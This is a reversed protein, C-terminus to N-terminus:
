HCKGHELPGQPDRGREPPMYSSEVLSVDTSSPLATPLHSLPPLTTERLPLDGFHNAHVAGEGSSYLYQLRFSKCALARGCKALLVSVGALLWGEGCYIWGPCPCEPCIPWPVLRSPVHCPVALALVPRRLM